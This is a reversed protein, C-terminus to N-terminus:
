EDTLKILTGNVRAFRETRAFTRVVCSQDGIYIRKSCLCYISNQASLRVAKSRLLLRSYPRLVYTKEVGDTKLVCGM